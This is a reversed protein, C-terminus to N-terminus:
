YYTDGALVLVLVLVLVLAFGGRLGDIRHPMGFLPRGVRAIRLRAERSQRSSGRCLWMEM